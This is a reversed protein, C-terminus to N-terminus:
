VERFKSIAQGHVVVRKYRIKSTKINEKLLNLTKERDMWFKMEKYHVDSDNRLEIEGITKSNHILKFIVKQDDMQGILKSKSNEVRTSQNILRVVENGEFVHFFEGEKITFYDVEGNNLFAKKFFVIKNNGRNLYDKLERMVKQLVTKYKIKDKVYGERSAPFCKLCKLLLDGVPFDINDNTLRQYSYLFIQWKKDGSKVSHLNNQQDIVDKKRGIGYVNVKGGILQAFEAEADHGQQRVRSANESTMARRKPQNDTNM